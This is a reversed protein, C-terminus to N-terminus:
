SLPLQNGNADFLITGTCKEQWDRNDIKYRMRALWYKQQGNTFASAAVSQGKGLDEVSNTTVLTMLIHNEQYTDSCYLQVVVKATTNFLEFENKATAFIQGNGGSINLTITVFWGRTTESKEKNTEAKSQREDCGCCFVLLLIAFLALLVICMKKIRFKEM